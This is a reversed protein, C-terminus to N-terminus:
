VGRKKELGGSPHQVSGLKFYETEGQAVRLRSEVKQQLINVPWFACPVPPVKDTCNFFFVQPEFLYNLSQAVSELEMLSLLAGALAPTTFSEFKTM